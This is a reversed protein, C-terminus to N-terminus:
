ASALEGKKIISIKRSRWFIGTANKKRERRVRQADQYDLMFAWEASQVVEPLLFHSEYTASWLVFRSAKVKAFTSHMTLTVAIKLSSSLRKLWAKQAFSQHDIWKSKSDIRRKKQKSKKWIMIHWNTNCNELWTKKGNKLWTYKIFRM